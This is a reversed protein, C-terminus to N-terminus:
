VLVGQEYLYFMKKEWYPSLNENENVDNEIHQINKQLHPYHISIHEIINNIRAKVTKFLANFHDTDKSINITADIIFKLSFLKRIDEEDAHVIYHKCFLCGEEQYCDVKISENQYNTSPNGYDSCNGISIKSSITSNDIINKNLENFYQSLENDVVKESQKTYSKLVTDFNSQSIIQGAIVGDEKIIQTTKKIRTKRSGVNTLKSDLHKFNRYILNTYYNRATFSSSNAKEGYNTFFLMEHEHGNLLFERLKLYKKFHSVFKNEIEFEVSKNDARPKIGKFLARTKVYDYSRHYKLKLAVSENMGTLYLFHIFYAQAAKIGFQLRNFSSKNENDYKLQQYYKYLNNKALYPTTQYKKVIEEVTRQKGNKYNFAQSLTSHEKSTSPLVWKSSANHVWLDENQMKLLFPFKEFNLLSDSLQNFISTYFTFNFGTITDDDAITSNVKTQKIIEINDCIESYNAKYIDLLLNRAERQLVSAYNISLEAARIKTRLHYTYSSYIFYAEKISHFIDKKNEICWTSFTRILNLKTSITAGSDGKQYSNIVVTEICYDILPELEKLYSSKKLILNGSTTIKCDQYIISCLAFKTGNIDVGANQYNNFSKQEYLHYLEDPTYYKIPIRFSM